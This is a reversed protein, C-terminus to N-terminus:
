NDLEGQRNEINKVKQYRTRNGKGWIQGSSNSVWHSGSLNNIRLTFGSILTLHEM